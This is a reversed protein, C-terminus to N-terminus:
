VTCLNRDPRQDARDIIENYSIASRLKFNCHIYKYQKENQVHEDM